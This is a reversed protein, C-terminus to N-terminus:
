PRNARVVAKGLLVWLRFEISSYMVCIHLLSTQHRATSCGCAIRNLSSRRNIAITAAALRDAVGARRVTNLGERGALAARLDHIPITPRKTKM